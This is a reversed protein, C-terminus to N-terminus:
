GLGTRAVAVGAEGKGDKGQRKGGTREVRESSELRGPKLRSSRNQGVSVTGFSKTVTGRYSRQVRRTVSNAVRIRRALHRTTFFVAGFVGPLRM